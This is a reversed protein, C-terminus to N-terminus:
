KPLVDQKKVIAVTVGGRRKIILQSRDAKREVVVVPEEPLEPQCRAAARAVAAALAGTVGPPLRGEM